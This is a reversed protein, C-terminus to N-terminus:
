CGECEWVWGGVVCVSFGGPVSKLKVVLALGKLLCHLYGLILAPDVWAALLDLPSALFVELPALKLCLLGVSSRASKSVSINVVHLPVDIALMALQVGFPRVFHSNKVGFELFVPFPSSSVGGIWHRLFSEKLGLEVTNPCPSRGSNKEIEGGRQGVLPQICQREKRLVARLAFSMHVLVMPMSCSGCAPELETISALM